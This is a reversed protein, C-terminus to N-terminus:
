FLILVIEVELNKNIIIEKNIFHIKLNSKLLFHKTLNSSYFNQNFYINTSILNLIISVDIYLMFVSFIQQMQIKKLRLMKM